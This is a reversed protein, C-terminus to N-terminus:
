LSRGRRGCREAPHRAGDACVRHLRSAPARETIAAVRDKLGAFDALEDICEQGIMTSDMDAVLLRKRRGEAPVVAVDIRRDAITERLRREASQADFGAPVILDVAIGPALVHRETGGLAAAARATVRDDVQPDDRSSVLTAILPM